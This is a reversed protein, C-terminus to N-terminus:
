CNMTPLCYRFWPVIPRMKSCVKHLIGMGGYSVPGVLHVVRLTQIRRGDARLGLLGFSLKFVKRRVIHFGQNCPM